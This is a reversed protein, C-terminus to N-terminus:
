LFVFLEYKSILYKFLIDVIVSTHGFNMYNTKVGWPYNYLLELLM